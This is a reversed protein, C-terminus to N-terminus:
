TWAEFASLNIPYFQVKQGPQLLCPESADADFLAVPTRGILQWGGPSDLPYIGTQVGAIGVSGRPVMKRPTPHRPQAIAQPVTGMYAFGPLFGNMYVQYTVSCHLSIVANTDLGCSDSLSILDPALTPDYCVPIRIPETIMEHTTDSTSQWAQELLALGKEMVSTNFLSRPDFVLAISNYAPIIDCVGLPKQKKLWHFVQMLRAHVQEDLVNGFDLLLAEDGLPFLCHKPISHMICIYGLVARHIGLCFLCSLAPVSPIKEVSFLGQVVAM